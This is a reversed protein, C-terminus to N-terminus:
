QLYSLYSINQQCCEEKESCQKNLLNKGMKRKHMQRTLYLVGRILKAPQNTEHWKGTQAGRGVSIRDEVAGAAGGLTNGSM